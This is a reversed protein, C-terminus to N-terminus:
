NKWDLVIDNDDLPATVKWSNTNTIIRNWNNGRMNARLIEESPDNRAEVEALTEVKGGLYYTHSRATEKSDLENEGRSRTVFHFAFPTANYRQKIKRAMEQAKNIDWSDIPQSDQEHFFTGPSSFVVFHQHM